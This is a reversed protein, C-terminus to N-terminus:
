ARIKEGLERILSREDPFRGTELKSYVKDGNLSVEFAGGASPVLAVEGAANKYEGLLKDALSVARPM